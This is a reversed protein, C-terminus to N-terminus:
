LRLVCSLSPEPTPATTPAAGCTVAVDFAYGSSSAGDVVLWLLPFGAVAVAPSGAQVGGVAYRPLVRSVDHKASAEAEAAGM